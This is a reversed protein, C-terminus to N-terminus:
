NVSMGSARRTYSAIRMASAPDPPAALDVV